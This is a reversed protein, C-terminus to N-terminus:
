NSRSSMKKHYATDQIKLLDINLRLASANECNVISFLSTDDAFHKVESNLGQNLYITLIM